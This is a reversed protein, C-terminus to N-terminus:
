ADRGEQHQHCIIHQAFDGFYNTMERSLCFDKFGGYFVVKRDLYLLRHAYQGITSSEHTILLITTGRRQNLDALIRYFTSRTEPDLAATPEDLILLDPNSVLARALLVRQRQGGSLKGFEQQQWDSIKLEGLIGSVAERDAPRMRRPWRQNALRGMAVVERVRAPFGRRSQPMFQPLYGVRRWQDFTELPQGLLEIRGSTKPALGLLAKILTTKGSGNPGVIGVYAGAPIELSVHDLVLSSGYQVVLDLCRVSV